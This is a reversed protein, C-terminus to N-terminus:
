KKNTTAEKIGADESVITKKLASLIIERKEGRSSSEWVGAQEPTLASASYSSVLGATGNKSSTSRDKSM